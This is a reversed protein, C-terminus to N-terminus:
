VWRNTQIQQNKDKVIKEHGKILKFLLEEVQQKLHKKEKRIHPLLYDCMTDVIEKDSIQIQFGGGRGRNSM